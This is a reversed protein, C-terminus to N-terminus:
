EIRDIKAAEKAEEIERQKTALTEWKERDYLLNTM